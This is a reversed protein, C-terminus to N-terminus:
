LPSMSIFDDACFSSSGYKVQYDSGMSEAIQLAQEETKFLGALGWPQSKLLAWGRRWGPNSIDLSPVLESFNPLLAFCFITLNFKKNTEKLLKLFYLYDSDEVFIVERGPARQTIHYVGGEYIIRERM